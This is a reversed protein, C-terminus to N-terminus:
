TSTARGHGKSTPPSASWVDNLVGRVDELSNPWLRAYTRLTEESSSHGAIAMVTRLDTGRSVLASIAVDRLAHWHVWAPLARRKTADKPDPVTAAKLAVSWCEGFTKRRWRGGRANRFIPEGEVAPYRALYAALADRAITPLPVTRVGAATKTPGYVPSGAGVPSVLQQRVRIEGRLFDVDGVQLGLLEGQRLGTSAAVLAMGRAHEPLAKDWARVQELTLLEEPDVVRGASAGNKAPPMPSKSLLGDHVAARLLMALTAATQDATSPQYAGLLARRWSRIESPRLSSLSRAGFTANIRKIAFSYASRTSPRVECGALWTKAWAEVTTRGSPREGELTVGHRAEVERDQAWDLADSQRTFGRKAKMQGDSGVWKARWLEVKTDGCQYSYRHASAM